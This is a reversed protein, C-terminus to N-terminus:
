KADTIESRNFRLYVNKSDDLEPWSFYDDNSTIFRLTWTFLKASEIKPAECVLITELTEGPKLEHHKQGDIDVSFPSAQIEALADMRNGYNDVADCVALTEYGIPDFLQGDSINTLRVGLVLMKGRLKETGFPGSRRWGITRLKVGLPTVRLKGIEFRGALSITRSERDREREREYQEEAQRQLEEFDPLGNAQDDAQHSARDPSKMLFHVGGGLALAVAGAIAVITLLKKRDSTSERTVRTTSVPAEPLATERQGMGARDRQNGAESGLRSDGTSSEIPPINQQSCTPEIGPAIM